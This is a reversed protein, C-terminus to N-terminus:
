RFLRGLMRGTIKGAARRGIRRAIKDPRGSAVAQIDGLLKAAGYLVSRTKNISSKRRALTFVETNKRRNFGDAECTKHWNFM